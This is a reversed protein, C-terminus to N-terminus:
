FFFNSKSAIVAFAEGSDVHVKLTSHCKVQGVNSFLSQSKVGVDTRVELVLPSHTEASSTPFRFLVAAEVTTM